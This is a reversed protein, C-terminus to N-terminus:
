QEPIIDIVMGPNLGIVKRRDRFVTSIEVPRVASSLLCAM